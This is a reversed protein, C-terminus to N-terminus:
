VEDYLVRGNLLTGNMPPFQQELSLAVNCLGDIALAAPFRHKHSASRAWDGKGIGVTVELKMKMTLM